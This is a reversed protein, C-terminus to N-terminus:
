RAGAGARLSASFARILFELERDLSEISGDAALREARWNAPGEWFHHLFDQELTKRGEEDIVDASPVRKWDPWPVGERPTALRERRREHPVDLWVTLLPAPRERFAQRTAFRHPGSGSFEFIGHPETSCARLFHARAFYDGAVTGDGHQRRFADINFHPLESHLRARQALTSKGTGSLGILLIRPLFPEVSPPSPEM